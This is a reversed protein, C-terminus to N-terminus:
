VLGNFSVTCYSKKANAFDFEFEDLTAFTVLASYRGKMAAYVIPMDRVATLLSEAQSAFDTDIILRCSFGKSYDGPEIERNGYDDETIQSYSKIRAKAGWETQGIDIKQGMTINGFGVQGPGTVTVSIRQRLYPPINTVIKDVEIYIPAFFYTKLDYVGRNSLLRLTQTFLVQGTSPLTSEIVIQTGITNLFSITDIPANPELVMTLSGDAVTRTGWKGDFAAFKNSSGVKFWKQTDGTLFLDPQCNTNDATAEYIVHEFIVREGTTWPSTDWMPYEDEDVTSSYVMEPAFQVPNIFFFVSLDEAM